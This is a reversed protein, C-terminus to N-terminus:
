TGGIASGAGIVMFISVLVFLIVMLPTVFRIYRDYGVKALTLGGMVIASTPTILNVWGSASQFGTVVMARSVNAFDALPAMIPMALTAHGSSSPVLFALPINVIFMVVAFVGSSLGSVVGELANLVTDTIGANNMVVTVGRALAIILAAGMFDGMGAVIANVMGEEGLKGVLGIIIAAVLFLAALEPFYWGLTIGELSESFDSWPIVSFIMLAFTLIFIWIVATQGGTMKPPEEAAEALLHEDGAVPKVLSRKPDKKVRQAYRLVFLITVVTLVLYMIVRLVIGNGLEIGAASSAVGTAFPNVTSALTGIGAGLMIVTAGVLRDYGLAVMIPVILAYFGLTEEAMGYTTGGLSFVVMLVIVLVASRAKFRHVLRAIGADLAGTRMTVTIFAGIALVFFFVQVAGILAGSEYPGIQAKPGLVVANDVADEVTLQDEPIGTQESITGKCAELIDEPTAVAAKLPNGDDDVDAQDPQIGYLGNVPSLWLDKLRQGFTSDVTISHYSGPVPKVTGEGCDVYDYSGPKIIFTLGWVILLVFFLVTFATPFRFGKKKPEEAPAEPPATETAM